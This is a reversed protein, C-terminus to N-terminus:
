FGTKKKKKPQTFAARWAAYFWSFPRRERKNSYCEELLLWWTRISVAKFVLKFETSLILVVQFSAGVKFDEQTKFIYLGALAFTCAFLGPLLYRFETSRSSAPFVSPDGQNQSPLLSHQKLEVGLVVLVQSM